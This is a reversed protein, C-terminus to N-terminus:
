LEVIKTAVNKCFESDHEVFLLTPSYELLLEEIQMRSIVDIFNLPEDWIHLHAKECLSKAILVKKKQGGSFSSIDKEFQERSFDLKRLIAKFLSEDISNELAYDTLNGKLYSTDQSVYSIKLGSGKRFTGTYKINEDCILKIISSKGSGNKGKLSIREGQEISLNIDKCVMTDGYFISVNELELLKNKHYALQSIKLSDSSEINKLLKSKEEISAERRNEISKSRKMMKASKHGVYGKDLKSGSNTTGKKSKEVENSWSSTRKASESLRNIDKRLKENEALEYGDQRKKNEWWSSFDGKQIEINTKNISLVHDICNDLFARDHSILIFGKKKRLYNSLKKRAEADLHNTPEDILLFSNEKLFMAALLAKTQEGKSLTYFQRYLVDDNIDLMSLEKMIEWDMSNPSIEKIIDITFNEQEEVEYPFYEFNVNTSINGTYEYKGLLLNFFTTKGRGNRGTFGLKWDTDIQFSVKELITDYNGDYSFTLNTVNILSM